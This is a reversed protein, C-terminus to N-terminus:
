GSLLRFFPIGWTEGNNRVHSGTRDRNLFISEIELACDAASPFAERKLAKGSENSM